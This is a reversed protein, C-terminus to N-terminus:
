AVSTYVYVLAVQDPRAVVQYRTPVLVTPEVAPGARGAELAALAPSACATLHAPFLAYVDVLTSLSPGDTRSSPETDISRYTFILSYPTKSKTHKETYFIVM